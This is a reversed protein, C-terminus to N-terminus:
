VLGGDVFQAVFERGSLLATGLLPRKGMALLQVDTEHGDIIITAWHVDVRVESDDALNAVIEQLFPLGIAAVAESPLTLAGAFGTDVVFDILLERHDPLRIAVSLTAELGTGLGATM